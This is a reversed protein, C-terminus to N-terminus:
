NFLAVTIITYACTYLAHGHEYRIMDHADIGTNVCSLYEHNLRAIFAGIGDQKEIVWQAIVLLWHVSGNDLCREFLLAGEKAILGHEKLEMLKTMCLHILYM